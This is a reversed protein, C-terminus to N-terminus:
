DHFAEVVCRHRCHPHYPALAVGKGLLTEASAGKVESPSFNGPLFPSLEPLDDPASAMVKKIQGLVPSLEFVKGGGEMMALCWDCIVGDDTAPGAIRLSRVGAQDMSLANGWNKSRSVSTEVVRLVKFDQDGVKNGFREKFKALEGPDRLSTGNEIFEDELWSKLSSKTSPDKVYRGFYFEDSERLFNQARKDVLNYSPKVPFEPNTIQKDGVQSFPEVDELRYYKYIAKIQKRVNDALPSATLASDFGDSLTKFVKNAFEESDMEAFDASALLADVEKLAKVRSGKVSPYAANFYKEAFERFRKQAPTLSALSIAAHSGCGCGSPHNALNAAWLREFTASLSEDSSRSQVTAPDSTDEGQGDPRLISASATPRTGADVAQDGGSGRGLNTKETRRPANLRVYRGRGKGFKYSTQVFNRGNAGASAAGDTPTSDGGGGFGGFGGFGRPVRPEEQDPADYGAEQAFVDQSIIGQDYLKELNAIKTAYATEDRESSLSKSPEFEIYLDEFDIGALVLHLKYGYEIVQKAVAQYNTLMSLMKEYVVGAYTETTSYTRGHLAPDSHLGSFIQQEVAQNIKDAGDASGMLSHHEVEFSGQFGLAFGDRYNNKIAESQEQLYAQLRAVYNADSEKGARVPAKLLFTVFGLLGMKKAVFKFNKIIERQIMIGELAAIMPPIAYPSNDLLMLPCYQYTNTNLEVLQTTGVTIENVKQYPAYGSVRSDWLFRVTSLPVFVAKEIFSIKKDVVWEVSGAGGRVIQALLTNIFGDVGGFQGFARHSMNNLEDLAKEKQADTKTTLVVKHGTNGLRMINDVNQSVSPNVISLNQIVDLYEIPFKSNVTSFESAMEQILASFSVNSDSSIQGTPIKATDVESPDQYSFADTGKLEKTVTVNEEPDVRAYRVDRARSIIKEIKFNKTKKAM